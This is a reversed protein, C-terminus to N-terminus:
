NGGSHLESKKDKPKGSQLEFTVKVKPSLGRLINLVTWRKPFCQLQMYPLRYTGARRLAELYV